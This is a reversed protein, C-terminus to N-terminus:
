AEKTLKECKQGSEHVDSKENRTRIIHDYMSMNEKNVGKYASSDSKRITIM